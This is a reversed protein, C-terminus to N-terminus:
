TQCTMQVHLWLRARSEKEAPDSIVRDELFEHGAGVVHLGALIALHMAAGSLISTIDKYVSNVPMPWVCILLLGQITPIPAAPSQIAWFCLANVQPGLKNLISRDKPYRRAGTIVIMWFLFRSLRYYANPNLAPDLIPLLPHYCEFFRNM